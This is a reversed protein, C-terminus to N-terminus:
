GKPTLRADAVGHAAEHSRDHGTVAALFSDRELALLRTPEVAKVTATRPIERLLAIEGFSEGAGQERVKTAGEFVEVRGSEILYFRDGVEGETIVVEGPAVDVPETDHCLRELTAVPLPAFVDNERLLSYQREDLPAGVELQRLRHSRLLVYAPVIVAFVFLSGRLGVLGIAVPVLISGLAMAGQRAAELAGRVRGLSEDDGLRQLLTNSAVEAFTYGGGLLAFGLYGAVAVVLAGPLAFGAALVVAGIGTAMVLRGRNLMVALIAGCAIAGLGWSANIWGVSSQSLDLLQLTVVVMFVDAAGEVLSLLTLVLAPLRLGPEKLLGRFGAATEGAVGRLGSGVYHPRSDKGIRAVAFAALLTAVAAVAFAAGIPAVALILGTSVSGLVFGGNDMFTYAVNAASLESPTRALRPLLAGMAPVFPASAVMFLGALAAVLALSGSALGVAASTGLAATVAVTSALLVGRRSYRDSITGAFPSAIAGPLLRVLGVVGVAAAGGVDFAYVGLAIAYAWTAFSVAAWSFQLRRLDPNSFVARITGAAASLEQRFSM